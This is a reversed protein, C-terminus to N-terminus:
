WDCSIGHRIETKSICRLGIDQYLLQSNACLYDYHSAPLLYENSFLNLYFFNTELWANHYAKLYALDLSVLYM